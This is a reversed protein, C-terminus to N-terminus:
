ILLQDRHNSKYTKRFVKQTMRRPWPVQGAGTGRAGISLVLTPQAAFTCANRVPAHRFWRGQSLVNVGM